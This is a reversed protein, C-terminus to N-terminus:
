FLVSPPEHEGPVYRSPPAGMVRKFATSFASESEYGLEECLAGISADPHTLREAALLMRWRTLYTMPTTDTKEKFRQAFASRSMGVRQALEQVSWGHGPESHMLRLAEGVHPDSLAALWSGRQTTADERSLHLRLAQVLMLHALHDLILHSGQRPEVLEQRMLEVAWRLAEQDSRREIHIVPPLLEMLMKAHPGGVAFRSGVLYFDGGGNIILKGDVRELRLVEESPQPELALDSTLRFPRGRPLVFCDGAELKVPEEEGDVVMWGEGSTIAYCKIHAGQDPFQISFPAGVDFGASIYSRPELLSLLDSLPDM